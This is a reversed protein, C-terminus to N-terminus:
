QDMVGSRLVKDVFKRAADLELAASEGSHVGTAGAVTTNLRYLEQLVTAQTEQPTAFAGPGISFGSKDFNTMASIYPPMNPEYQITRGGITVTSEQGALYAARLQAFEQSSLVSQAENVTMGEIAAALRASDAARSANASQQVATAEEETIRGTAVLRELTAALGVAPPIDNVLQVRGSDKGQWYSSDGTAAADVQTDTALQAYQRPKPVGGAGQGAITASSVDGDANTWQGGDRNGAPVRPQDANYKKLAARLEAKALTAAAEFAKRIDAALLEVDRRLLAIEGRRQRLLEGEDPGALTRIAKAIEFQVHLARPVASEIRPLPPKM